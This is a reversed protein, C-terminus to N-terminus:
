VQSFTNDKIYKNRSLDQWIDHENSLKFLWKDLLCKNQLDLNMIGLGGQEKPQSLLPWWVLRYNKNHNDNALFFRSWYYEPRMQSAGGGRRVAGAADGSVHREIQGDFKARKPLFISSALSPSAM